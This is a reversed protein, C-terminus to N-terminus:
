SPPPPRGSRRRVPLVDHFQDTLTSSWLERLTVRPYGGSREAAFCAALTSTWEAQQLGVERQVNGWKTQVQSTLTGQHLEFYLEGCWLPMSCPHWTPGPVAITPTSPDAREAADTSGAPACVSTAPLPEVGLATLAQEAVAALGCHSGLAVQAPLALSCSALRDLRELMAETPGGAPGLARRKVVTANACARKSAGGGDGNGFLLLSTRLGVGRSKDSEESRKVDSVSAQSNYTDARRRCM